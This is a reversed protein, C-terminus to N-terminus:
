DNSDLPDTGRIYWEDGDSVGDGDTDAELPDTETTNVEYGDSLGDGDTDELLPDTDHDNVEDGDLLGDEDTDPNRPDTGLRTEDGNLLGDRDEDASPALPALAVEEVVPTAAPTGAPEPTADGTDVPAFEDPDLVQGQFAAILFVAGDSGATVEAGVDLVIGEGAAVGTAEGENPTVIASGELLYLLAPGLFNPITVSDTADLSGESLEYDLVQSPWQEIPASAFQIGELEDDEGGFEIMLLSAPDNGYQYRTYADGGSFFYAEGVEIRARKSTVDNRIVTAGETQYAFSFGVDFSGAEDATLPTFARVRWVSGAEPAVALGQAILRYSAEAQQALASWGVGLVVGLLVVMTAILRGTRARQRTMATEGSNFVNAADTRVRM